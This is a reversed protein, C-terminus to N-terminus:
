TVRAVKRYRMFGRPDPPLDPVYALTEFLRVSAANDVHVVALYATVDTGSSRATELLALEGALLLPRALAQGRRDPAVTISVEWEGESELDWRVTGVPGLADQALLLVRDERTLSSEFWARHEAWPVVDANRSVARADPDNRWEWLLRADHAGAPRTTMPESSEQKASQPRAAPGLRVAQEWTRVVRWAGLGDVVRRGALALGARVQSDTLASRM